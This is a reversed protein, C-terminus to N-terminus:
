RTSLRQQVVSTSLARPFEASEVIGGVMVHHVPGKVPSLVTIQELPDAWMPDPVGVYVRQYKQELAAMEIFSHM